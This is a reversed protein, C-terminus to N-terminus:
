QAGFDFVLVKSGMQNSSPQSMFSGKWLFRALPERRRFALWDIICMPAARAGVELLVGRFLLVVCGDPDANLPLLAFRSLNPRYANELCVPSPRLKQSVASEPKSPNVHMGRRAELCGFGPSAPDCAPLGRQRPTQFFAYRGLKDLDARLAARLVGCRVSCGRASSPKQACVPYFHRNHMKSNSRRAAGLAMRAALLSRHGHKERNRARRGDPLSGCARSVVRFRGVPRSWFHMISM